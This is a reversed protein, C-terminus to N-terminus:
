SFCVVCVIELSSALQYDSGHPVVTGVPAANLYLHMSNLRWFSSGAKPWVDPFRCNTLDEGSAVFGDPRPFWYGAPADQLPSHPRHHLLRAASSTGGATTRRSYTASWRWPARWRATRQPAPFRPLRFTPPLHRGHIAQADGLGARHHEGAGLMGQGITAMLMDIAATTIRRVSKHHLCAFKTVFHDGLLLIDPKTGCRRSSRAVNLRYYFGRFAQDAIAKESRNTATVVMGGGYHDHM